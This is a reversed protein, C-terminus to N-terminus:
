HRKRLWGCNYCVSHKEEPIRASEFEKCPPRALTERSYTQREIKGLRIPKDHLKM